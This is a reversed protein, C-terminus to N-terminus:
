KIFQDLIMEINNFDTHPIRILNINNWKCYNDKMKDHLVTKYFTKEGFAPRMHQEGDFEICTNCDPLYFDFPLPLIDKCDDFRYQHIYQIHNKKLFNEIKQEGKSKKCYPCGSDGYLVHDIRAKWKNNCVTCKFEIKDYGKTYEGLPIITTCVKNLEQIFQEQTKKPQREIQKQLCSLHGRGELINDARMLFICGCYVCKVKIKDKVGTYSGIVEINQNNEKARKMFDDNNTKQRNHYCVACGQNRTGLIRIPTNSFENGCVKCKFKIPVESKIYEELPEITPCKNKIRKLFEENTLKKPM